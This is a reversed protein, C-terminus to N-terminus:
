GAPTDDDKNHPETNKSETNHPETNHPETDRKEQDRMQRNLRWLFEPDDDPAMPGGRRGPRSGGGIPGGGLPGGAVRGGTAHRRRFRMVIWALPGIVPAVIILVVWVWKPIGGTEDESAGGLDALAYVAVAIVLLTLLVRPM